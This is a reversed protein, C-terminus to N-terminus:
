QKTQHPQQVAAFEKPHNANQHDIGDGKHENEQRQRANDIEKQRAHTAVLMGFRHAPQQLPVIM